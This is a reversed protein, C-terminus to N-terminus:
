ATRERQAERKASFSSRGIAWTSVGTRSNAVRLHKGGNEKSARMEPNPCHFLADKEDAVMKSICAVVSEPTGEGGIVFKKSVSAIQALSFALERDVAAGHSDNLAEELLQERSLMDKVATLCVELPCNESCTHLYETLINRKV